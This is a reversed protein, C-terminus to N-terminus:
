PCLIRRSLVPPVSSTLVAHTTCSGPLRAEFEQNMQEVDRLSTKHISRSFCVDPDTETTIRYEVAYGYKIALQTMSRMEWLQSFSNVVYIRSVDGFEMCKRVREVIREHYEITKTPDFEYKDREGDNQIFLDNTSFVAVSRVDSRPKVLRRVQKTISKQFVLLEKVTPTQLLQKSMKPLIVLNMKTNVEDFLPELKQIEMNVDHSKGSGPLGRYFILKREKMYANCEDKSEDQQLPVQTISDNQLKSDKSDDSSILMPNDPESVSSSIKAEDGEGTTHHQKMMKTPRLENDTLSGSRDRMRSSDYHSSFINAHRLHNHLFRSATWGFGSEFYHLINADVADEQLTVNMKQSQVVGLRPIVNSESPSTLMRASKERRHNKPGCHHIM